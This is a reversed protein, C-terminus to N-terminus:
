VMKCSFCPFVLYNVWPRGHGFVSDEQDWHVAQTAAQIKGSAHPSAGTPPWEALFLTFSLVPWCLMM